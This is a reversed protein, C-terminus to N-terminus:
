SYQTKSVDRCLSIGDIQRFNEIGNKEHFQFKQWKGPIDFDVKGAQIQREIIEQVSGLALM